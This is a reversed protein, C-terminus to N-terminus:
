GMDYEYEKRAVGLLPIYEEGDGPFHSLGFLVTLRIRRFDEDAVSLDVYRLQSRLRDRFGEAGEKSTSPLLLAFEGTDLQAVFDEERKAGRLINAVIRLVGDRNRAGHVEELEKLFRIKLLLLSFDGGYRRVRSIEESVRFAFRKGTELFTVENCVILESIETTFTELKEYLPSLARYMSGGLFGGAPLFFLWFLDGAGVPSSSPEWLAVGIKLSGYAFVVFLSLVLAPIEGFLIGTAFTLVALFGLLYAAFSLYQNIFYWTLLVLFFVVVGFSLIYIRRKKKQLEKALFSGEGTFSLIFFLDTDDCLLTM